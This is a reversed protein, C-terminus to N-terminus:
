TDVCGVEVGVGLKLQALLLSLPYRDRRVEIDAQRDKGASLGVCCGSGCPATGKGEDPRGIVVVRGVEAGGPPGEHAAVLLELSQVEAQFGVDDLGDYHARGIKEQVVRRM